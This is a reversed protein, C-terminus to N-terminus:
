TRCILPAALTTEAYRAGQDATQRLIEDKPADVWRCNGDNATAARALKLREDLSRPVAPDFVFLHWRARDGYPRTSEVHRISMGEPVEQPMCAALLPLLLLTRKM